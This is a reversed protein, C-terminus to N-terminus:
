EKFFKGNTKYKEMDKVYPLAFCRCLPHLPIMPEIEDLTFRQGHLSACKECVRDDGATRWEAEVTIGLVGWSRYEQITALHHARIIETRALLDARRKAPIFRGLTDIIGLDGMGTGNITSVLKRALLAPGDGDALGQALVRSIQQSMADTIGKLENYARIYILGIRDIHFPLSMVMDIGGNDEITPIDLGAKRMEYRARIIGRKYSDFLYLNQWNSNVSNGIQELTRVDLIGKNIQEQLWKMFEEVKGASSAYSFQQWNTPTMQQVVMSPKQLGFCDQDFVSRKVMVALEDFKRNMAKAFANRLGTTHTPDYSNVQIDTFVQM